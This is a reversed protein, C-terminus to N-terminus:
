VALLRIRVIAETYFHDSYFFKEKDTYSEWSIFETRGDGTYRAIVDIPGFGTGPYKKLADSASQMPQGFFTDALKDSMNQDGGYFVLAAGVGLARAMEGIVRATEKTWRLNQDANPDYPKGRNPYHSALVSIRGVGPTTDVWSVGLVVTDHGRGWTQENEAVVKGHVKWTGPKVAENKVAIWVDRMRVIRYGHKNAVEKLVRFNDVEGAETGTVWRNGLAFLKEADLRWERLTRSYRMSMQGVRFDVFEGKVPPKPPVPVPAPKTREAWLDNVAAQVKVPDYGAARLRRTRDDGNGWKGDLVQEAVQRLTLTPVPAPAPKPNAAQQRRIERNLDFITAKIDKPYWSKDSGARHYGSLGFARAYYDAIQSSTVLRGFLSYGGDVYKGVRFGFVKFDDSISQGERPPLTFGHWHYSFGQAPTRVWGGHGNSRFFHNVDVWPVGPIDADIVMDEDHTGASQEVGENNMPQIVRIGRGFRAIARRNLLDLHAIARFSGVIDRGYIDKQSWLVKDTPKPPNHWDIPKRSVRYLVTM